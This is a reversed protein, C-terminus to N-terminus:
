FRATALTMIKEQSVADRELTGTTYGNSLVVISDCMNIIEPLESSVLLIALGKKALNDILAYIEAKTKVDVGRTPEDLILIDKCSLLWRSILVKQQNGGSLTRVTQECGTVKIQLDRIMKDVADLEVSRQYRFCRIFRELITISANFRVGQDLFLGENKRDEPVFGIGKRIAERPNDISVAKGHYLLEGKQLKTLGFLCNMTESRGAGILGAFGVIEGRRVSFSVDKVRFGDSLHRVELVTEDTRSNSKTYYQTLERGVMKTILEQRTTEKTIVTDIYEGDRLITIRDTIEELESLRHSIYIIGVGQKKLKRILTFLVNVDQECLSSTPEDMVIIKVGFSTARVIEVMQQQAISLEGLVADAPIDLNFDNILSQAKQEETKRDALGFRTLERGMFINEAVTMYPMLMLEQHILSIGLARAAAVSPIQVPKEDIYITGSDKTYIGSLIKMLTSKGAGNEGLLACVEGGAVEFHVNSLVKNGSFSKSIDNMRLLM